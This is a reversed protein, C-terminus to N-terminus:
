ARNLGLELIRYVEEKEVLTDVCGSESLPIGQHPVGIVFLKESAEVLEPICAM